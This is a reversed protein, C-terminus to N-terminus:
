TRGRGHPLINGGQLGQDIDEASGVIHTTLRTTASTDSTTTQAFAATAPARQQGRLRGYELTASEAEKRM